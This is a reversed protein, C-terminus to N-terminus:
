RLKGLKIAYFRKGGTGSIQVSRKETGRKLADQAELEDLINNLSTRVGLDRIKSELKEGRLCLCDDHILGDHLADNFENQNNALCFAGSKNLKCIEWLYNFQNSKCSENNKTSQNTNWVRIQQEQVLATLLRVFSSYLAQAEQESILQKESCYQIFLVYATNLYFHTEQLRRHETLCVGQYADLWQKLLKQIEFYNTIFWKIFFYYFTSVHLPQDQFSKLKKEDTIPLLEVPLLRAADSGTGVIYEGTFMVGCMPPKGSIPSGKRGRSIGDAVIRTIELLTEEQKDKNKKLKTPFLDDLVVLCDRKEYLLEEAAAISANLRQLNAIGTDRNYIQTLFASITTKKAGTTGYLFVICRPAKWVAEYASRMIYLLSHALVVRLADPSLSMLEFMGVVAERETMNSDIALKFPMPVLEVNPQNEVGSPWIVQDGACFFPVGDIVHTGLQNSCSSLVLVHPFYYLTSSFSIGSGNDFSKRFLITSARLFPSVTAFIAFSFATLSLVIFLSIANYRLVPFYVGRGSFLPLFGRNVASCSSSTFFRIISCGSM